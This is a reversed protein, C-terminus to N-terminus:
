QGNSSVFTREADMEAPQCAISPVRHQQNEWLLVPTLM